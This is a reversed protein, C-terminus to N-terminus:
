LTSTSGNWFGVHFKSLRQIYPLWDRESRIMTPKTTPQRSWRDDNAYFNEYESTKCYSGRSSLSHADQNPYPGGVDVIFEGHRPGKRLNLRGLEVNNLAFTPQGVLEEALEHLNFLLRSACISLIVPLFGSFIAPFSVQPHDWMASGIVGFGVCVSSLKIEAYNFGYWYSRDRVLCRLLKNKYDSKQLPGAIRAVTLVILVTELVFTPVLMTWYLHANPGTSIDFCGRVPSPLVIAGTDKMVFGFIITVVVVCLFFFALVSRQVAQKWTWLHVVRAVLIATWACTLTLKGVEEPIHSSVSGAYYDTRLDSDILDTLIHNM